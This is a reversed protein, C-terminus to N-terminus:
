NFVMEWQGHIIAMSTLVWQLARICSLMNKEMRAIHIFIFSGEGTVGAFNGKGTLTKQIIM